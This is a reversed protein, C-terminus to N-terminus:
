SESDCCFPFVCTARRSSGQALLNVRQEFTRALTGRLLVRRFEPLRIQEVADLGNRELLWNRAEKM